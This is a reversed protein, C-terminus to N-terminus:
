GPEGGVRGKERRPGLSKGKESRAKGSRDGSRERRQWLGLGLRHGSRKGMVTRFIKGGRVL